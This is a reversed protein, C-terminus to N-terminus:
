KVLNLTAPYVFPKGESAAILGRIGVVIAYIWVAFGLLAAVIPGIIVLLGVVAIVFACVTAILMTLHCNIAAKSERVVAPDNPSTAWTIVPAIVPIIPIVASALVSARCLITATSADLGSSASMSRSCTSCHTAVPSAPAGCFRCYVVAPTPADPPAAVTPRAVADMLEPIASAQVWTGMVPHHVWTTATVSGASVLRRLEAFEIPGM